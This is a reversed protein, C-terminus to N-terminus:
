KSKKRRAGRKPGRKAKIVRARNGKKLLREMTEGLLAPSEVVVIGAKKMAEM